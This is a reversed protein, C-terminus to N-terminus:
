MKEVTIVAVDQFEKKNIAVRLVISHANGDKFSIVQIYDTERDNNLDLNNIKTDKDNIAKEFGELSPSKQFVALVAYLNLNDGPLGLATAENDVQSFLPFSLLSVILVALSLIVKRMVEFKYMLM